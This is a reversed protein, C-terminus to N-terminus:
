SFVLGLVVCVSITIASAFSDPDVFYQIILIDLLKGLSYGLSGGLSIVGVKPWKVAGAGLGAGLGVSFYFVLWVTWEPATIPLM